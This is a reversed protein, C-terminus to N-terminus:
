LAAIEFCAWSYKNLLLQRSAKDGVSKSFPSVRPLSHSACALSLMCIVVPVNCLLMESAAARTNTTCSQCVSCLPASHLSGQDEEGPRAPPDQLPWHLSPFGYRFRQFQSTARQLMSPASAFFLFYVANSFRCKPSYYHSRRLSDSACAFFSPM